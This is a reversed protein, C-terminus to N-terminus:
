KSGSQLWATLDRVAKAKAASVIEWMPQESQGGSFYRRAYAVAVDLDENEWFDDYADDFLRMDRRAPTEEDLEMEFLRIGAREEQSASGWDNAFLAACEELTGFFYGGAFRGCCEPFERRRVFEFIGEVAWKVFDTQMDMQGFKQLVAKTYKASYLMAYFCDTGRGLAQVFPEALARNEKHDPSLTEGLRLTDSMHYVKM